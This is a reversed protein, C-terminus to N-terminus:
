EGIVRFLFLPPPGMSKKRPLVGGSALFHKRAASCLSSLTERYLSGAFCAAEVHLIETVPM